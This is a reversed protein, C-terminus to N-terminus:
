NSIDLGEAIQKQKENRANANIHKAFPFDAFSTSHQHSEILLQSENVQPEQLIM